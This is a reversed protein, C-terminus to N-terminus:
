GCQWFFWSQPLTEGHRLFLYAIGGDGFNPGQAYHSLGEWNESDPRVEPHAKAPARIFSYTGDLKCSM